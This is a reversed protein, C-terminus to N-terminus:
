TRSSSRPPRPLSELGQVDAHGLTRGPCPRHLLVRGRRGPPARRRGGSPGAVGPPRTEEITAYFADCDLHAITLSHLEKHRVIRASGCTPCTEAEPSPQNGCDRCLTEVAHNYSEIHELGLHGNTPRTPLVIRFRRAAAGLHYRSNTWFERRWRPQPCPPAESFKGLDRLLRRKWLRDNEGPSVARAPCFGAYRNHRGVDFGGCGCASLFHRRKLAKESSAEKDRGREM